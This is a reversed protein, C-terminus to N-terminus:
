FFISHQWVWILQSRAKVTNNVVRCIHIFVVVSFGWLSPQLFFVTDIPHHHHHYHFLHASIDSVSHTQQKRWQQKSSLQRKFYHFTQYIMITVCLNLHLCM